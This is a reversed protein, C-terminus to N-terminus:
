GVIPLGFPVVWHNHLFSTCLPPQSKHHPISIDGYSSSNTVALISHSVTPFYYNAAKLRHIFRPFECLYQLSTTAEAPSLYFLSLTCLSFNLNDFPIHILLRGIDCSKYSDYVCMALSDYTCMNCHQWICLIISSPPPPVQMGILHLPLM